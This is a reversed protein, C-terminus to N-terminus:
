RVFSDVFEACDKNRCRTKLTKLHAFLQQKESDSLKHGKDDRVQNYEPTNKVDFGRNIFYVTEKGAANRVTLMMSGGHLFIACKDEVIATYDTYMAPRPKTQSYVTQSLLVAVAIAIFHKLM